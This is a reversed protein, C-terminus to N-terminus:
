MVQYNMIQGYTEVLSEAYFPTEGFLIEYAVIGYSWWDCEVGYAGKGDDMAQFFLRCVTLVIFVCYTSFCGSDGRLMYMCLAASIM